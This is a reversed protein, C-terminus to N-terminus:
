RNNAFQKLLGLLKPLQKKAYDSNATKILLLSTFRQKASYFARLVPYCDFYNVLKSLSVQPSKMM